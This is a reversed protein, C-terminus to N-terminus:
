RTSLCLRDATKDCQPTAEKANFWYEHLKPQQPSSLGWVELAALTPCSRLLDGFVQM